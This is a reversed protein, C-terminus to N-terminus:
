GAQQKKLNIEERKQERLSNNWVDRKLSDLITTVTTIKQEDNSRLIEVLKDIYKQEETTYIRKEDFKGTLLEEVTIGLFKAVEYAKTAGIDSGRMISNVISKKLGKSILVHTGGFKKSLEIYNAKLSM